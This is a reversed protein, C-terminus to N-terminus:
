IFLRVKSKNFLKLGNFEPPNHSATVMIGTDFGLERTLLALAPTPLIGFDVVDIGCHLLWTTVATKVVDRTVRADTAICVRATQPLFAGIAKSVALCFEPTLKGDVVDRIGSSGFLNM